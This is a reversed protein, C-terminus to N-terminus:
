TGSVLFLVRSSILKSNLCSLLSPLPKLERCLDKDGNGATLDEIDGVRCRSMGNCTIFEHISLKNQLKNVINSIRAIM